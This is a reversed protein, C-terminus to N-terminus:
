AEKIIETVDRREAKCYKVKIGNNGNGGSIIVTM